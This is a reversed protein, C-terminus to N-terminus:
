RLPQTTGTESSETARYRDRLVNVEDFLEEPVLTGRLRPYAKEADQRWVERSADDLEIVNLGRKVMEEIAERDEAVM